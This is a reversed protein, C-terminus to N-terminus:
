RKFVITLLPFFRRFSFISQFLMVCYRLQFHAIEQLTDKKGVNTVYVQHQRVKLETSHAPAWRGLENLLFLWLIFFFHTVVCAFSFGLKFHSWCAGTVINIRSEHIDICYKDCCFVGQFFHINYCNQGCIFVTGQWFSHVRTCFARRWWVQLMFKSHNRRSKWWTGKWMGVWGFWIM